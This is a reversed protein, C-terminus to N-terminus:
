SDGTVIKKLADPRLITVERKNTGIVGADKFKKLTRSLTEGVTGLRSALEGRTIGLNVAQGPTIKENPACALIYAALRSSVSRHSLDELLDIFRRCFRSLSALLKMALEPNSHVIGLFAERPFYICETREMALSSAPYTGGAFMAAEAFSEGPLIFHLLQEKGHYSIRYIKVKGTLVFYFSDAKDGEKFIQTKKRFTRIEAISALRQTDERPLGGLLRSTSVFLAIKKTDDPM